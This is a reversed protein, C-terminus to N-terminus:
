TFIYIILIKLSRDQDISMINAQKANVRIDRIDAGISYIDIIRYEPYTSGSKEGCIGRMARRLPM